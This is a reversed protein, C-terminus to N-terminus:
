VMRDVFGTKHGHQIVQSDHKSFRLPTPTLISLHSLNSHCIKKQRWNWAVSWGNKQWKSLGGVQKGFGDGYVIHHNCIVRCEIHGDFTGTCSAISIAAFLILESFLSFLADFVYLSVTAIPLHDLPNLCLSRYICVFRERMPWLIYQMCVKRPFSASTKCECFSVLGRYNWHIICQPYNDDCKSIMFRLWVSM